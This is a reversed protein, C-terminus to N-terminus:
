TVGRVCHTRHRFLRWSVPQYYDSAVTGDYLCSQSLSDVTPPYVVSDDSQVCCTLPALVDPNRAQWGGPNTNWVDVHYDNYGTIGCCQLQYGSVVCRELLADPL